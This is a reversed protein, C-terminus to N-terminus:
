TDFKVIYIRSSTVCMLPVCVDIHRSIYSFSIEPQDIQQKRGLDAVTLINIHVGSEREREEGNERERKRKRERVRENVRERM